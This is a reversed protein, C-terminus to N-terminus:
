AYGNAAGLRAPRTPTEGALLALIQEPTELVIVSSTEFRINTGGFARYFRVVTTMNVFVPSKSREDTLKIFTPM